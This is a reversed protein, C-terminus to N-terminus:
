KKTRPKSQAAPRQLSPCIGCYSKYKRAFNSPQKYGLCFAIEKISFGQSLLEVARRQRQESLWTKTNKGTQKLFHRNLTRTCVVCKKALAAVSWTAQRALEPWNQIHILKTIM